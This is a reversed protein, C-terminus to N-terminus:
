ERGRAFKSLENGWGDVGPRRERAFLEAVRYRWGIYDRIREMAEDPKRSHERVRSHIVEHVPKARVSRGRQGLLCFEANKLTTFGPGNHIDGGPGAHLAYPYEASARLKIWTFAVASPRFGWAKMMPIHAGIVFFPSPIWLFLACDDQALEGVPFRAAASAPLCRYHRRPNRGPRADSNSQFRWPWDVVIARYRGRKLKFPKVLDSRTGRSM